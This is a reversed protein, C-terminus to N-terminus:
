GTTMDSASAKANGDASSCGTRTPTIAPWSEPSAAAILRVSAPVGPMVTRSTAALRRAAAAARLRSECGPRASRDATRGSRGPARPSGTPGAPPPRRASAAGGAAGIRPRRTSRAPALHRSRAVDVPQNGADDARAQHGVPHPADAERDDLRAHALHQLPHDGARHPAVLEQRRLQQGPHRKRAGSTANGSIKPTSAKPM